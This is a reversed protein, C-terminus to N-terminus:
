NDGNQEGSLEKFNRKLYELHQELSNHTNKFNALIQKEIAMVSHFARDHSIIADGLLSAEKFLEIANLQAQHEGYGGSDSWPNPVNNFLKRGRFNKLNENVRGDDCPTKSFESNLETVLVQILEQLSYSMNGLIHLRSLVEQYCLDHSAKREVWEKESDNYLNIFNLQTTYVSEFIGFINHILEIRRVHNLKSKHSKDTYAEVVETYSFFDKLPLNTIFELKVDLADLRKGSALSGTNLDEVNEGSLRIRESNLAEIMKKIRKIYNPLIKQFSERRDKFKQKRDAEASCRSFWFTLWSALIAVGLTVVTGLLSVASPNDNLFGIVPELPKYIQILTNKGAMFNIDLFLRDYLFCAM